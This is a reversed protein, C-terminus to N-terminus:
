CAHVDTFTRLYTYAPLATQSFSQVKYWWFLRWFLGSKKKESRRPQTPVYTHAPWFKTERCTIRFMSGPHFRTQPSAVGHEWGNPQTCIKTKMKDSSAM